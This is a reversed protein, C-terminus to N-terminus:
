EVYVRHIVAGEPIDVFVVCGGPLCGTSGAPLCADATEFQWVASRFPLNNRCYSSDYLLDARGSRDPLLEPLAESIM